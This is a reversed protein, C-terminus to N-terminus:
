SAKMAALWPKILRYEALYEAKHTFIWDVGREPLPARGRRHRHDGSKTGPIALIGEHGEDALRDMFVRQDPFISLEDGNVINLGFLDPDL